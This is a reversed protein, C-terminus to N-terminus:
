ALRLHRKTTRSLYALANRIIYPDDKLMGIGTNCNNCLWGRVLGTGHDHDLVLNAQHTGCIECDGSKSEGTAGIIGMKVRSKKRGYARVKDANAKKWAAHGEKVKAMNKKRWENCRNLCHEKNDQYYKAPRATEAVLRCALCRKHNPNVREIVTECDICKVPSYARTMTQM